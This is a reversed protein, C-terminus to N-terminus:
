KSVMRNISVHEFNETKNWEGMALCFMFCLLIDCFMEIVWNWSFGILFLCFVRNFFDFRQCSFSLVWSVFDLKEVSILNGLQFFNFRQWLFM